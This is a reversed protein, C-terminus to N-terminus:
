WMELSVILRHVFSTKNIFLVKLSHSTQCHKVDVNIQCIHRAQLHDAFFLFLFPFLFLDERLLNFVMPQRTRSHTYITRGVTHLKTLLSNQWFLHKNLQFWKWSSSIRLIAISIFSFCAFRSLDFYLNYVLSSSSLDELNFAVELWYLLGVSRVSSSVFKRFFTSEFLKCQIQKLFWKLINLTLIIM